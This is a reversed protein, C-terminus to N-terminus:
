ICLKKLQELFRKAIQPQLRNLNIQEDPDDQLHYLENEDNINDIFKYEGDAIMRCHNLLSIQYPKHEVADGRIHPLLSRADLRSRLYDVGALDLLTPHLDILEALVESTGKYPQGNGGPVSIILPVRLAAEYMVSKQFLGHDGLMEGHDSCFVIVTRELLQRQELVDLMRGIWGDILEIAGAYHRKVKNLDDESMGASQKAAKRRIWDPKEGGAASIASPFEADAYHSAYAAPADWPDHPGTFSVFLHWPAEETVDELYSCAKRGIYSDHFYEAPLSSPAAYWVPSEKERKKMDEVFTDLLGHKQLYNQYPGTTEFAGSSEKGRRPRGANGKGETEHPDTFGLHYMIPLNGEAGYHHDGKHLDTKGIVAVRYGAKRLLQYYTVTETPFNHKNGLIGLRHPYVGAALSSRSPACLPSCCSANTFRVGRDAIRDINPTNVPQKGTHGLWDARHQDTMILLLNLREIPELEM